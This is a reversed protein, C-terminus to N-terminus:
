ISKLSAEKTLLTSKKFAKADELSRFTGRVRKGNVGISVIFVNDRERYYINKEISFTEQERDVKVVKFEGTMQFRALTASADEGKLEYVEDPIELEPIMEDKMDPLTRKVELLKYQEYAQMAILRLAKTTTPKIDLSNLAEQYVQAERENVTQIIRKLANGIRVYVVYVQNGNITRTYLKTEM